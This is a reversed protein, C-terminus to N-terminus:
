WHQSAFSDDCEKEGFPNTAIVVDSRLRNRLVEKLVM